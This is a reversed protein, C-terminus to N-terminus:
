GSLRRIAISSVVRGDSDLIRLTGELPPLAGPAALQSRCCGSSGATWASRSRCAAAARATSCWSAAPRSSSRGSSRWSGTSSAPSSAPRGHAPSASSAPRASSTRPCALESSLVSLCVSGPDTSASRYLITGGVHAVARANGPLPALTTHDGGKWLSDITSQALGSVHRGLISQGAVATGALLVLVALSVTAVRLQTRRRRLTQAQRRAAVQLDGRVAELYASHSAEATM